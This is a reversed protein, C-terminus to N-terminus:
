SKIAEIEDDTLGLAKLKANANAKDTAQKALATIEDSEVKSMETSLTSWTIESYPNTLSWTKDAQLWKIKNFAAETEIDNGSFSYEATSKLNYIAIVFKEHTNM